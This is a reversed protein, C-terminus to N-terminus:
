REGESVYRRLLNRAATLREIVALVEEPPKRGRELAALAEDVLEDGLEKRLYHEHSRVTVKEETM